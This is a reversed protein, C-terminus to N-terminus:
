ILEPYSIVWVVFGIAALVLIAIVALIIKKIM